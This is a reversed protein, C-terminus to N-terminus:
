EYVDDDDGMGERDPFKMYEVEPDDAAAGM